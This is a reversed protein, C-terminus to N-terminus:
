SLPVDYRDFDRKYSLLFAGLEPTVEVISGPTIILNVDKLVTQEQTGKFVKIVKKPDVAFTRIRSKSILIISKKKVSAEIEKEKIEAAKQDEIAKLQAKLQENEKKLQEETTQSM